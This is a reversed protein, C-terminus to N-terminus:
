SRISCDVFASCALGLSCGSKCCGCPRKGAINLVVLSYLDVGLLGMATVADHMWNPWGPTASDSLLFPHPSHGTLMWRVMPPMAPLLLLIGLVIKVLRWDIAAAIEFLKSGNVTNLFGHGEASTILEVIVAHPIQERTATKVHSMDQDLAIRAQPNKQHGSIAVARLWTNIKHENPVKISYTGAVCCVACFLAYSKM